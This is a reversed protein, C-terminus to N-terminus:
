FLGGLPNKKKEGSDGSGGGGLGPVLGGLGKKKEEPAAEEEEETAVEEEATSSSEESESSESESSEASDDPGAAKKGGLIGGIGGGLAKKPDKIISSSPSERGDEAKEGGGLVGELSKKSAELDLNGSKADEILKAQQKKAEEQLAASKAEAEAKLAEAEQKVAEAQAAAQEKVAEVQAEAEAKLKEAEAKLAEAPAGLLTTRISAALAEAFSIKPEMVTGGVPVVVSLAAPVARAPIDFGEGFKPNAIHVVMESRDSFVGSVAALQLRLDIMGDSLNIDKSFARLVKMELSEIQGNLEFTPATPDSLPAVKGALNMVFLEKNGSLNGTIKFRGTKMAPDGVTGIGDAEVKLDVGLNFPDKGEREQTFALASTLLFRELMFPPLETPPAPEETTPPVEEAPPPTEEIPKEAPQLNALLAELNLSGDAKRILYLNSEEVRIEDITIQQKLILDALNIQNLASTLTFLHPTQNFGEPNGLRIGDVSLRGLLIQVALDDIELTTGLKEEIMPRAKEFAPKLGKSLFWNLGFAGVVVVLVFVLALRILIKM